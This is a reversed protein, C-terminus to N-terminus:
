VQRNAHKRKNSGVTKLRRRRSPTLCVEKLSKVWKLDDLSEAHVIGVANCHACQIEVKDPYVQLNLRKNGCACKLLGQFDLTELRALVGGMVTTDCYFGPYNYDELICQVGSAAASVGQHPYEAPGLFGM